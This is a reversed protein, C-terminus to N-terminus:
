IPSTYAMARGNRNDTWVPYVMMNTSTIGLYDGFYSAALGPIPAPTFAVDSIKMDTWSDGGDYSYSVWTELQNASVERDDYYIM